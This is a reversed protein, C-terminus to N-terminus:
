PTRPRSVPITTSTIVDMSWSFPWEYPVGPVVEIPKRYSGTIAVKRDDREITLADEELPIDYDGSLEMIRKRLEDDDATKFMAADRIGDRFKVYSLYESGVRYVANALLAVIALKVVMKLM